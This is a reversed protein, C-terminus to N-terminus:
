AAPRHAKALRIRECTEALRASTNHLNESVRGFTGALVTLLASAAVAVTDPKTM